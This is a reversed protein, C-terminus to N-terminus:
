FTPLRYPPLGASPPVDRETQGTREGKQGAQDAQRGFFFGVTLLPSGTTIFNSRGIYM